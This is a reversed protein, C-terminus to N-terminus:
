SWHTCARCIPLAEFRGERHLRRLRALPDGRWIGALTDGAALNGVILDDESDYCCASVKGDAHVSLNTWLMRCPGRRPRAATAPLVSRDEVKGAWDNFENILIGDAPGLFPRWRDFFADIQAETERMRIIRLALKPKPASGRRELLRRVNAEVTTLDGRVRVKAYTEPDVGDISVMVVDIALDLLRGVNRENLLMGNTLLVIPSIGRELAYALLEEWKPHLLSEGFGSPFLIFGRERAAEDVARRFIEEPMLTAPRATTPVPCMVCRLNCGSALELALDVPFAIGDWGMPDDSLLARREDWVLAADENFLARTSAEIPATSTPTTPQVTTDLSM